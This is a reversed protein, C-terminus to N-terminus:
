LPKAFKKDITISHDGKKWLKYKEKDCWFWRKNKLWGNSNPIVAVSIFRAPLLSYTQEFSSYTEGESNRFDYITHKDGFLKQRFISKLTNRDIVIFWEEFLIWTPAGISPHNIYQTKITDGCLIYYGWDFANYFLNNKGRLTNKNVQEFYQPIGCNDIDAINYLFMGDKFFMFNIFFTDVKYINKGYGFVSGPTEGMQFYGNINILSDIGTNKDNYCNSFKKKHKNPVFPVSLCSTMLVILLLCECLFTRM